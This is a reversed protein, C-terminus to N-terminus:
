PRSDALARLIDLAGILKNVGATWWHIFVEKGDYKEYTPDPDKIIHSPEILDSCDIMEIGVSRCALDIHEANAGWPTYFRTFEVGFNSMFFEQSTQIDYVIEEFGKTAYDVHELGHWQPEMEGAEYKERIFEITSPFQQIQTVIISPRHIFGHGAIINHVGRFRGASDEHSSSPVLVDDDRVYIM